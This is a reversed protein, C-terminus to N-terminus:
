KQLIIKINQAPEGTEDRVIELVKAAQEKSIQTAKLVVNVSGTQVTVIADPFGSAVVLGELTLESEMSKVIEIKQNQAETVTEADSSKNSIISDLYAIETERTNERNAKYNEFYNESSIVAVDGAQLAGKIDTPVKDAVNADTNPNSLIFNIYGVAVLVVILGTLLLYKKVKSNKM